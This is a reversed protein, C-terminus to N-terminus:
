LAVLSSQFRSPFGFLRGNVSFADKLKKLGLISSSRWSCRILRKLNGNEEKLIEVALSLQRIVDRKEEDKKELEIEMAKKEMELRKVESRQRMVDGVFNEHPNEFKLQDVRALGGGKIKCDRNDCNKSDLIDLSSIPLLSVANNNYGNRFPEEPLNVATQICTGTVTSLKSLLPSSSSYGEAKALKFEIAEKAEEEPEPNDVESVDSDSYNLSDTSDWM